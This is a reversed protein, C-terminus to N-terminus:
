AQNRLEHVRVTALAGMPTCRVHLHPFSIPGVSGRQVVISLNFPEHCRVGAAGRGGVATRLFIGVLAHFIGVLPSDVRLAPVKRSKMLADARVTATTGAHPHPADCACVLLRFRISRWELTIPRRKVPVLDLPLSGNDERGYSWYRAPEPQLRPLSELQSALKAGTGQLHSGSSTM